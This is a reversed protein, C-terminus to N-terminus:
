ERFSSLPAQSFHLDLEAGTSTVEAINIYGLEGNQCWPSKVLGFFEIEERNGETANETIYWDWSGLFYHLMVTPDTQDETQRSKPLKEFTSWANLINDAFGNAEEGKLAKLLVVAEGHPLLKAKRLNQLANWGDMVKNNIEM